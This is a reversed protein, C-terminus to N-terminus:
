TRREFVLTFNDNPMACAEVLVLGSAKGLAELDGMDRVGWAPDQARLSADFQANSPATHRGDRKFPGYLFLHGGPRLHRGAGGFLGESVAWPAIHLVNMALIAVIGDAPPRGPAGLRWDPQSADLEVPPRVTEAGAHAAWAAISARHHPNPDSPWWALDPLALAFAAAHQGTGAGIELVAGGAGDLYRRLVAEVPDRNRHFSPANFRGDPLAPPGMRGFDPGDRAV